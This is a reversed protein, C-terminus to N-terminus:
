KILNRWIDLGNAFLLLGILLFFGVTVAKEMFSDSVRRGTVVEWLLFMVYGGDLAPIPLLNMFALILSLTATLHWFQEWNFKAPFLNGISIFGGLNKSASIQGTFMKGFASIQTGLFSVGEEVGAPIARLLSFSERETKFPSKPIVGVTGDETVTLGLRLTDTTNRLVVLETAQGKKSQAVRKFDNFFPTPEAGLGIVRDGPQVGAAAAPMGAQTKEVYFFMRPEMLGGKTVGKDTVQRDIDNAVQIKVPQGAREVTVERTSGLVVQKLFTNPEFRDFPTSGLHTIVDGHQFGQQLLVSDFAIGDPKVESTPIYEKGYVWLLLGMILFGLIFNVTVGGIMIILRQWAKKSRFEHPQPPSNKFETDMSEDVMGAIKVYGGLPLWGIGYETDGSKKSWLSNFPPADFFLYFKDVRTKFWRAPFFHGMEHLVILISLSLLLQGVKILIDM